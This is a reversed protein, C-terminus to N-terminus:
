IHRVPPLKNFRSFRGSDIIDLNFALSIREENSNNEDVNHPISSPFLLMTGESPFVSYQHSSGWHHHMDASYMSSCLSNDLNIFTIPPNKDPCKVYFVGAFDCGPHTHTLNYTKTPNINIWCNFIKFELEGSHDLSDYFIREVMNHIYLNIKSNEDKSFWDDNSQWGHRNSVIRGEKDNKQENKCISIFENKLEDYNLDKFYSIPHAFIPFAGYENDEFEFKVHNM